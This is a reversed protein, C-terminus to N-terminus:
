EAAESVPSSTSEGKTIDSARNIVVAPTDTFQITMTPFDPVAIGTDELAYDYRGRHLIRPETDIGIEFGLKRARGCFSIDEGLYAGNEQSHSFYPYVEQGVTPCELKQMTKQMELFVDRKIATMGLGVFLADVLGPTYFEVERVGDAPRGITTFKPRRMSYLVGLIGYKSEHCRTGLAIVDSARFIIDHDIWVIVDLNPDHKFAREVLAARSMDIYPCDELEIIPVGLQELARKCRGHDRDEGGFTPKCIVIRPAM